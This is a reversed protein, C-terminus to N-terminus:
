MNFFSLFEKSLARFAQAGKSKPAHSFITEGQMYEINEFSASTPITNDFVNEQGFRDVADEMVARHVSKRKDIKNVLIKLFELDPNQDRRVSDMLDLVGKIGELSNGSGADMPIMVFDACYLANNVFISLTPPCDIFIFDYHEVVYDRIARRLYLNSDPYNRAFPIELGSTESINPLIYLNKHITPYICDRVDPKNPEEPDLLHYLSGNVMAGSQLVAKTSDSQPDNDVILVKKKKYSLGAAINVTLTTKGAGGKYNSVAGIKGM